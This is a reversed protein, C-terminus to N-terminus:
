RLREISYEYRAEETTAPALGSIVLWVRDKRELGRLELRGQQLTDLPMQLVRLTEGQGELLIAQVLYRQGVRNDSYVFGRAEWEGVGSELDDCFGTELICIDDILWGVRNVADDTVYEFRVLVQQGAYASLDFTEEIWGESSGTYAAGLSNGNPNDWTSSPGVLIEWTAGGDASVEVYAYDWDAEIDYWMHAKLTASDLARLDFSRTLMADSDDGRNSWWAYQGSHAEVPVLRATSEGAFEVVLDGAAELEVYDAGYQRVTSEREVPYRSHRHDISLPSIQRDPYIYRPDLQDIELGAGDVYNAVLWDGYVEEFTLGYGALVADLGRTGNAPHAVLERILDPGFRGYLYLMFLYSGGYHPSADALEPWTNLQLDPDSLFDRDFGGPDFGGVSAALESCGENVWTEENRDAAWHIMHQFEHMLVGNYFETGPSMGGDIAVYFMEHENSYPNALQSYEDASSYYGAVSRGMQQSSANLIYLRPDGDVGPSWESGFLARTTPYIHTEFADASRVLAARDFSIDKQVWMYLHETMYELVATIRTQESTDVNGVWFEVEDGVQYSPPSTQVVEPIPGQDTLREALLRLDRQPIEAALLRAETEYVAGQPTASPTAAPTAPSVVARTPTPVGPPTPTSVLSVSSGDGETKWEAWARVGLLTGLLLLALCLCLSLVVLVVVAATTGTGFRSARRESLDSV